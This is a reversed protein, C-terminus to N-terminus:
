WRGTGCYNLEWMAIVCPWINRIRSWSIIVTLSSAYTTNRISDVSTNSTLLGESAGSSGGASGAAASCPSCGPASATSSSTSGWLPPAINVDGGLLAMAAGGGRNETGAGGDTAARAMNGGGDTAGARVEPVRQWLVACTLVFSLEPGKSSLSM